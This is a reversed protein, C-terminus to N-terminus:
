GPHHSTVPQALWDSPKRSIKTKAIAFNRVTKKIDKLGSSLACHRHNQVISLRPTSKSPALQVSLRETLHRYGMSFITPGAPSSGAVLGNHAALELWQAVPGPTPILSDPRNLWGTSAAESGSLCSIGQRSRPTLTRQQPPM